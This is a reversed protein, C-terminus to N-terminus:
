HVKTDLVQVFDDNINFRFNYSSPRKVAILEYHQVRRGAIYKSETDLRFVVIVHKPKIRNNTAGATDTSLVRILNNNQLQTVIIDVELMAASLGIVADDIDNCSDILRRIGELTFENVENDLQTVRQRQDGIIQRADIDADPGAEREMEELLLRAENLEQVKELDIQTATLNPFLGDAYGNYWTPGNDYMPETLKQALRTRLKRAMDSRAKYTKINRYAPDIAYLIAHYFCSGEAVTGIRFVPENYWSVPIEQEYDMKLIDVGVANAGIIEQSTFSRNITKDVIQTLPILMTNRYADFEEVKPIELVTIRLETIQPPQYIISNILGPIEVTITSKTRSQLKQITPRPPIVSPIHGIRTKIMSKTVIPRPVNPLNSVPVNSIPFPIPISSVGSTQPVPILIPVPVFKSATPLQSTPVPVPINGLPRPVSSTGTVKPILSLPINPDM